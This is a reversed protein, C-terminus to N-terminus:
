ESALPRAFFKQFKCPGEGSWIGIEGAPLPQPDSCAMKRERDLLVFFDGGRAYVRLEHFVGPTVEFKSAGVKGWKGGSFKWLNIGAHYLVLSYMDGTVEGQRQARLLIAPAGQREFAMTCRLGVDRATFDRVLMMAVGLGDKAAVIEKEDHGPAISNEIFGARQVFPVLVPFRAERVPLWQARDWDAFDVKLPGAAFAAAALL